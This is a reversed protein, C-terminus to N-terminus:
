RDLAGRRAREVDGVGLRDLRDGRLKGVDVHEVVAGAEDMVARDQVAVVLGPLEGEVEVDFRHVARDLGEQRAHEGGPEPEITLM